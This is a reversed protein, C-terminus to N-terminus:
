CCKGPQIPPESLVEGGVCTSIPLAYRANDQLQRAATEGSHAATSGRRKEWGGGGSLEPVAKAQQELEEVRRVLRTEEAIARLRELEMEQQTRELRGELEHAYEEASAARQVTRELAAEKEALGETMENLSQCLQTIEGGLRSNTENAEDGDVDKTQEARQAAERLESIEQAM